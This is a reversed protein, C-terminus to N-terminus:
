VQRASHSCTRRHKDDKPAEQEKSDNYSDLSRSLAGGGLAESGFRREPGSRWWLAALARKPLAQFRQLAGLANAPGTKPAKPASGSCEPLGGLASQSGELLAGGM